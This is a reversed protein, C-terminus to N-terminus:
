FVIPAYLSYGTLKERGKLFDLEVLFALEAVQGGLKEVLHASALATGGTALLDDMILVKEGKQIADVHMTLTATGYELSYTEEITKYPLKGKKRIPILGAGIQTAVAGAFLFGRADVAAIKAIGQDKYRAVFLDITEKFLKADALVPMIDKFLVGAIPFDPVDRITKTIQEISM